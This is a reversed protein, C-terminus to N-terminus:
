KKSAMLIHRERARTIWISCQLAMNTRSHDKLFFLFIVKNYSMTMFIVALIDEDSVLDSDEVACKITQIASVKYHLCPEPPLKGLVSGLQAAYMRAGLYVAAHKVTESKFLELHLNGDITRPRSLCYRSRLDLLSLVASFITLLNSVWRIIFPTYL